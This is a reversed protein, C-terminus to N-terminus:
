DVTREQDPCVDPCVTSRLFRAWAAVNGGADFPIGKATSPTYSVRIECGSRGTPRADGFVTHRSLTVVGCLQDHDNAPLMSRMDEWYTDPTLPDHERDTLPLAAFAACRWPSRRTPRYERSQDTYLLMIWGGAVGGVAADCTGDCTEDGGSSPVRLEVGIGYDALGDPVPIERYRVSPIRRMSRVSEVAAWVQDPVGEPRSPLTATGAKEARADAGTPFAYIDAM